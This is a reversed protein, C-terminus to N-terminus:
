TSWTPSRWSPRRARRARCADGWASSHGAEDIQGRRWGDPVEMARGWGKEGDQLLFFTLFLALLAVTVANAVSSVIDALHDSLWAPDPRESGGAGRSRHAQRPSRRSSPRSAGPRSPAVMGPVYPLFAARAPPDPPRGRPCGSGDRGRGRGVGVLWASSARQRAACIAAVILAVIVSASRASCLRWGPQVAEFRLAGCDALQVREGSRAM